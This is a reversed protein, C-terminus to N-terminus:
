KKRKGAKAKMAEFTRVFRDTTPEVGEEYTSTCWLLGQMYGFLRMGELPEDDPTQKLQKSVEVIKQGIEEDTKM